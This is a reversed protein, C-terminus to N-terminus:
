ALYQEEDEPKKLDAMSTEEQKPAWLSQLGGVAAKGLGLNMNAWPNTPTAQPQQPQGAKASGQFANGLRTGMRSLFSQQANQKLAERKMDNQVAADMTGKPVIQTNGKQDLGQQSALNMDAEAKSGTGPEVFQTNVQQKWKEEPGLFDFFGM